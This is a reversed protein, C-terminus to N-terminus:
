VDSNELQRLMKVLMKSIPDSKDILGKLMREENDMIVKPANLSALKAIRERRIRIRESHLEELEPKRMDGAIGYLVKM